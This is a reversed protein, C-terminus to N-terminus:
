KADTYTYIKTNQSIIPDPLNDVVQKANTVVILPYGQVNYTNSYTITTISGENTYIDKLQDNKNFFPIWNLQWKDGTYAYPNKKSGYEFVNAAIIQNSNTSSSYSVKVLNQDQYEYKTTSGEIQIPNPGTSLTYLTKSITKTKDTLIKLFYNNQPDPDTYTLFTPADNIYKVDWTRIKGENILTQRIMNGAADYTYVYEDSNFSSDHVTTIRNESDYDFITKSVVKGSIITTITKVLQKETVPGDKLPNNVAKPIDKKCGVTFLLLFITYPLFRNM